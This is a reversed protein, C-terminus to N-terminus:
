PARFVRGNRPHDIAVPFGQGMGRGCLVINDTERDIFKRVAANSALSDINFLAIRM